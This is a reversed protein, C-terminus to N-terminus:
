SYILSNKDLKEIGDEIYSVKNKVTLARRIARSWPLYSEGDFLAPVLVSGPNEPQLFHQVVENEGHEGNISSNELNQMPNFRNNTTKRAM